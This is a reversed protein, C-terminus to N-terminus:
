KFSCVFLTLTRIKSEKKFLLCEKKNISCIRRECSYAYKKPCSCVGLDDLKPFIKYRKYLGCDRPTKNHCVHVPKWKPKLETCQRLENFKKFKELESKHNMLSQFTNLTFNLMKYYSCAQKSIACKDSGCEFSYQDGCVMEQKHKHKKICLDRSSLGIKSPEVFLWLTFLYIALYKLM